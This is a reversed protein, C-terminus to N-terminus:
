KHFEHELNLLLVRIQVFKGFLEHNNTYNTTFKLLYESTISCVTMAFGESTMAVGVIRRLFCDREPCAGHLGLKDPGRGGVSRRLGRLSM